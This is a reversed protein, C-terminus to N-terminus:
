VMKPYHLPRSFSRKGGGRDNFRQKLLRQGIIHPSEGPNLKKEYKDGKRNRLPIGAHSVLTVVDDVYIYQGEEVQGTFGDDNPRAIEVIVRNIKM